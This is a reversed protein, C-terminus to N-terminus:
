DLCYETQRAWLGDSDLIMSKHLKLLLHLHGHIPLHVTLTLSWLLFCSLSSSSSSSSSSPGEAPDFWPLDDFLLLCSEPAEPNFELEEREPPLESIVLSSQHSEESARNIGFDSCDSCDESLCEFAPHLSRRQDSSRQILISWEGSHNVSGLIIPLYMRWLADLEWPSCAEFSSTHYQTM